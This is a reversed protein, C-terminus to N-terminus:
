LARGNPNPILMKLFEIVIEAEEQTFKGFRTTKSETDALQLSFYKKDFQPFIIEINDLQEFKTKSLSKEFGVIHRRHEISSNSVYLLHNKSKIVIALGACFALCPALFILPFSVFAPLNETKLLWVVLTLTSIFCALGYWIFGSIHDTLYAKDFTIRTLKGTKEVRILNRLNKEVQLRDIKGVSNKSVPAAANQAPFPNLNRTRNAESNNQALKNAHYQKCIVADIFSKLQEAKEKTFKGFHKVFHEHRFKVSFEGAINSVLDIELLDNLSTRNINNVKSFFLQTVSYSSHILTINRHGISLSTQHPKIIYRVWLLICFVFLLITLLVAIIVILTVLFPSLPKPTAVILAIETLIVIIITVILIIFVRSKELRSKKLSSDYVLVINALKESFTVCSSLNKPFVLSDLMEQSLFQNPPSKMFEPNSRLRDLYSFSSKKFSMTEHNKLLPINLLRSLQGGINSLSRIEGQSFKWKSFIPVSLNQEKDLLFFRYPKISKAVMTEVKSFSIASSSSIKYKSSKVVLDQTKPFWIIKERFFINYIFIGIIIGGIGIFIISLFLLVLASQTYLVPLQILLLLPLDSVPINERLQLIRKNGNYEIHLNARPFLTKTERIAM